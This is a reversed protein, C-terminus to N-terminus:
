ELESMSRRVNITSERPAMSECRLRTLMNNRIDRM